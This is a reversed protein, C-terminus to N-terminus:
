VMYETYQKLGTIEFIGTTNEQTKKSSRDKSTVTAIYTIGGEETILYGDDKETVEAVGKIIRYRLETNANKEKV